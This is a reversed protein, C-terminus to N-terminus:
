MNALSSTYLYYYKWVWHQSIQWNAARWRSPFVRMLSSARGHTAARFTIQVHFIAPAHNWVCISKNSVNSSQM